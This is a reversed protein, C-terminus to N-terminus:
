IKALTQIDSVIKDCLKQIAATYDAVFGETALTTLSIALRNYLEKPTMRDVYGEIRGKVFGRKEIRITFYQGDYGPDAMNSGVRNEMIVHVNFMRNVLYSVSPTTIIEM